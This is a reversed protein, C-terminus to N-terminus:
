VRRRRWWIAAGAALFAAPLLLLFGFVLVTLLTRTVQLTADVRERPQITILSEDASLWNLVNVGFDVNSLLGVFANSLFGSGGVVVL